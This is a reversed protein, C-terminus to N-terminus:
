NSYYPYLNADVNMDATAFGHQTYGAPTPGCTLGVGKVFEAPTAGLYHTDASVQGEDLNVFSGPLLPQGNDTTNGAVTCYAGRPAEAVAVAPPSVLTEFALDQGRDIWGSGFNYWATGSTYDNAGDTGWGYDGTQSTSLVIAYRQGSVVTAPSAFTVSLIQPTGSVWNAPITGTALVNNSDPVGAVVGTIQVTIPGTPSRGWVYVDVVVTSLNGSIGATFTQADSFGTVIDSESTIATLNSQDITGPTADALSPVLAIAALACIATVALLRPKSVAIPLNM